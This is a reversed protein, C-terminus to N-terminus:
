HYIKILSGDIKEMCVAKSIDIDTQTEPQEGLNFFRDFSRSVINFDTDLILGRCEAVIPHAKTSSYIQDYNLVILGEEYIKAKISFEEELAKLGYQKLYKIVEM